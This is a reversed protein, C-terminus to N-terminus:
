EDPSDFVFGVTFVGEEASYAVFFSTPWMLPVDGCLPAMADKGGVQPPVPFDLRGTKHEARLEILRDESVMAEIFTLNGGFSGAM